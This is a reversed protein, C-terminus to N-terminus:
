KRLKILSEVSKKIDNLSNWKANYLIKNQSNLVLFDIDSDFKYYDKITFGKDAIVDHKWNFNKRFIELERDRNCGVIALLRIGPNTESKDLDEGFLANYFCKECSGLKYYLVCLLEGKKLGVKKPLNINESRQFAVLLVFIIIVSYKM